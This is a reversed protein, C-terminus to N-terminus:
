CKIVDTQCLESEGTVAYPPEFVGEPVEGSFEVANLEFTARGALFQGDKSLCLEPEGRSGTSPGPKLLFCKVRQGAVQRESVATVAFDEPRRTENWFATVPSPLLPVSNPPHVICGGKPINGTPREACQYSRDERIIIVSAGGPGTWDVRSRKGEQYWVLRPMDQTAVEYTVTFTSSRFKDLRHALEEEDSLGDSCAVLALAFVTAALMARCM